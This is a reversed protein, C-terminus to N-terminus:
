NRRSVPAAVSPGRDSIVISLDQEDGGGDIPAWRVWVWLGSETPSGDLVAVRARTDVVTALEDPEVDGLGSEEVFRARGLFRKNLALRLDERISEAERAQSDDILVTLLGQGHDLGVASALIADGIRRVAEDFAVAETPREPRVPKRATASELADRAERVDSRGASGGTSRCGVVGACVVLGCLVLSALRRVIRSVDGGSRASGGM